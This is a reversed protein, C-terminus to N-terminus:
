ERKKIIEGQFISLGVNSFFFSMEKDLVAKYFNPLFQCLQEPTFVFIHFTLSLLSPLLLSLCRVFKTWFLESLGKVWTLEFAKTHNLIYMHFYRYCFLWSTINIFLTATNMWTNTNLNNSTTSGIFWSVTQVFQIGRMLETHCITFVPPQNM